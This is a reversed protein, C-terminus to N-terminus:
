ESRTIGLLVKISASRAAEAIATGRSGMLEQCRQRLTTMIKVSKEHLGDFTAGRETLYDLMRVFHVVVRPHRNLSRASYAQLVTELAWRLQMPKTPQNTGEKMMTNFLTAELQLAEELDDIIKKGKNDSLKEENIFSDFTIYTEYSQGRTTWLRIRVTNYTINFLVGELPSMEYTRICSPLYANQRSPSWGEGTEPWPVWKAGRRILLQALGIYEPKLAWITYWLPTFPRPLVMTDPAIVPRGYQFAGDYYNDDAHNIDYGQDLLFELVAMRGALQEKSIPLNLGWDCLAAFLCTGRRTRHDKPEKNPHSWGVEAGNDTLVKVMDKRGQWAALDLATVMYRATLNSSHVAEIYENLCSAGGM